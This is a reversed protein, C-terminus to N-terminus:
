FEVVCWGRSGTEESRSARDNREYEWPPPEPPTIYLPTGREREERQKRLREIQWAEM